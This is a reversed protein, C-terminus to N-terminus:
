FYISWSIGLDPNTCNLLLIFLLVEDKLVKIDSHLLKLNLSMLSAFPLSGQTHNLLHSLLTEDKVETDEKKGDAMNGSAARKALADALIPEIFQDVIKRHPKVKDKWFEALPWSSGFATRRTSLYQGLAFATAFKNSPHNLFADSNVSSSSVPYPFGASLTCIDKGFLFETASDITFRSM